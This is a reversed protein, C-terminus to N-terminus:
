LPPDVSVSKVGVKDTNANEALERAFAQHLEEGGSGDVFGHGSFDVYVSDLGEGETDVNSAEAHVGGHDEGAFAAISSGDLAEAM